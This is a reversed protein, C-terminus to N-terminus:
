PLPGIISSVHNLVDVWYGGTTATPSLPIGSILTPKVSLLKRGFRGTTRFTINEVTRTPNVHITIKNSRRAM